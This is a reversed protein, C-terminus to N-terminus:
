SLFRSTVGWRAPLDALNLSAAREKAWKLADAALDRRLWKGDAYQAALEAESAALLDPPIHPCNKLPLQESVVKGAFALCTSFGCDRCNTRPLVTKYLDVVSLAM